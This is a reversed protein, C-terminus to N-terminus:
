IHPILMVSGPEDVTLVHNNKEDGTDDSDPYSLYGTLSEGGDSDSM